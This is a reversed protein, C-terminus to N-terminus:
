AVDDGRRLRELVCAYYTMTLIKGGYQGRWATVQYGAPAVLAALRERCVQLYFRHVQAGYRTVYPALGALPRGNHYRVGQRLSDTVVVGLTPLWARPAGFFAELTPWPEGHPDCDLLGVALTRPVYTQLVAV